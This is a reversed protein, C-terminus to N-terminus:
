PYQRFRGFAAELLRAFGITTRDEGRPGIIQAGIPLGQPDLGLPFATAPLGAPAAISTWLPLTTYPAEDRDVKLRREDFPRDDHPFATTPAVPTLVVDWTEFTELWQEALQLRHRDLRLWEAHTMANGEAGDPADASLAAMLLAHFTQALDKLDPLAKADHEVRCGQKQLDDALRALAGSVASATPVLPHEAIVLIRFQDLQTRRSRPLEVRHATDNPIDPGIVVDLALM